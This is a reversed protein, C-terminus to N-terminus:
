LLRVAGKITLYIGLLAFTAFVLGQEHARGWRTAHDLYGPASGPRLIALALAAIPIAFWLVNYIALEIAATAPPPADAAIANLAVLYILGPVHTAVGALAATAVSPARLRRALRATSGNARPERPERRRVSVRGRRYGVAFALAAVGALLNFVASFTSGGLNVRAGHFALVCLLGFVMSTTFGAALFFLLSRRPDPTRVLTVVAAQSTAPRLGSILGLALVEVTM